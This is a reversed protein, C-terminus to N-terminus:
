LPSFTASDLEAIVAQEKSLDHIRLQASVSEKVTTDIHITCYRSTGPYVTDYLFATVEQGDATAKECRFNVPEATNNSVLIRLTTGSDDTLYPLAKVTFGNKNYIETGAEPFTQEYQASTTLKFSFTDLTKFEKTEFLRVDCGELTVINGIYSDNLSKRSIKIDSEVAIGAPVELSFGDTITIDNVILDDAALCVPYTNGNTIEVIIKASDTTEALRIAKFTVNNENYLVTEEITGFPLPVVSPLTAKTPTTTTPATSETTNCGALVLLCSIAMLCIVRKMKM